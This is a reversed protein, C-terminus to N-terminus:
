ENCSLCEIFRRPDAATETVAGSSWVIGRANSSSASNGFWGCYDAADNVDAGSTSLGDILGLDEFGKQESWRFATTKQTVGDVTRTGCVVNSSNIANVSCTGVDPPVPPHLLTTQGTAIHYLFGLGNAQGVVYEDNVDNASTFPSEAYPLTTFQQTQTDYFFARNQSPGCLRYSGCVYRGSPSIATGITVAPAQTIPCIPGQIVHAVEYRCPMPSQAAASNVSSVLSFAIAGASVVRLTTGGGALARFRQRKIVSQLGGRAVSMSMGKRDLAPRDSMVM